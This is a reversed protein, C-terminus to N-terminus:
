NRIKQRTYFLWELADETRSWIWKANLYYSFAELELPSLTDHITFSIDNLLLDSIIKNKRLAEKLYKIAMLENNMYYYYLARNYDWMANIEQKYLELYQEINDDTFFKINFIKYKTGYIDDDCMEQLYEYRELATIFDGTEVCVEAIMYQVHLYYELNHNLDRIKLAADSAKNLIIGCQTSIERYDDDFTEQLEEKLLATLELCTEIFMQLEDVNMIDINNSEIQELLQLKEYEEDTDLFDDFDIDDPLNGTFFSIMADEFESLSEDLQKSFNGMTYKENGKVMWETSFITINLSEMIENSKKNITNQSVGIKSVFDKKMIHLPNSSDYIFNVKMITDLIASSWTKARGSNLPSPRKRALKCTLEVAKDKFNENLNEECFLEIEKIIPDVKETMNKPISYKKKM